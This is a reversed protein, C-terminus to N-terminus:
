AVRALLEVMEERAPGQVEAAPQADRARWVALIRGFIAPDSVLADPPALLNFSRAFARLVTADTRLAPLLGDRIVSRMFARPDVPANPDSAPRAGAEEGRRQAEAVRRAERDQERAAVYWPGIERETADHFARARAVPDSPQARLADLFEYAHVFALACGRGYLPNTHIAADGVAHIGLAVPEGGRVFRTRRNRLNRMGRVPSVPESRGPDLWERLAPLARAAAEFARPRLIARLPEDDPSAALTVSFIGSDGPFIAYKMYGLDAGVLTASAPPAAGSRLRHFRSCYFIGCDESQEDVPAAGLETLWRPLKSRRGSADVVLDARSEWAAAESRVRVGLVRPLGTGADIEGLLGEVRAGSHWRVHPAAEVCRRAVWEFTIRRCALLVLKEDDPEPHFDRLGPPLSEGFRVEYAGHELLAAYLDPLREVLLNRLRSLFAHSHWVQPAGRREWREFAEVPSAPLPTADGELVEVECGDRSLALAAALGAVGGGIVIARM